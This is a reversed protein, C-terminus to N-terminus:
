KTLKGSLLVNYINKYVHIVEQNINGAGCEVWAESGLPQSLYNIEPKSESLLSCEGLIKM